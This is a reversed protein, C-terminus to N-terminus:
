FAWALGVTSTTDLGRVAVPPATDWALVFALTLAIHSTVAVQLATDLLGRVDNGVRLNPQVYLTANLTLADWPRVSGSVYSSLRLERYVGALDGPQPELLEEAQLMVAVGVAVHADKSVEHDFRGGVGGLARVRLRRFRDYEHQVFAEASLGDLLTRRFRLHEFVSERFPVDALSGGSGKNGYSGTATLLWVSAGSRYYLTASGTAQLILVNGTSWSGTATVRGSPGEAVPKGALSQVNMIQAAVPLAFLTM